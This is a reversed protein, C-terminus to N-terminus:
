SPGWPILLGTLTGFDSPSCPCGGSTTFTTGYLIQLSGTFASFRRTGSTIVLDLSFSYDSSHVLDVSSGSSGPLVTAVFEGARGTFTLSGSVPFPPSPSFPIASCVAPATRLLTGSYTGPGLSGADFRGSLSWSSAPGALTCGFV